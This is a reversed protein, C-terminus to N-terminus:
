EERWILTAQRGTIGERRYSFYRDSQAYTCEGSGYIRTLGLKELRRVALAGLDAMFRGRPSPRFAGDAAPDNQLFATRVEAGVEFHEPGIAPGLWALLREPPVGLAHVTAELVGAALGRWGAHAAAVCEGRDAAFVVPLCDATLIACVKGAQRAIAGDAPGKLPAEADLQAVVNGHVQSLWSPEAPLKAEVRLRRRNEAVAAPADGVHDGLNFYAYPARSAGSGLGGRQTSLVHVGRPAPWDAEFWPPTM